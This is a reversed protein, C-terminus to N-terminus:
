PAIKWAFRFTEFGPGPTGLLVLQGPALPGAFRLIGRVKSVTVQRAFGYRQVTQTEHDYVESSVSLPTRAQGEPSPGSLEWRWRALEVCAPCQIFGWVEFSIEGSGWGLEELRQGTRRAVEEAPAPALAGWERGEAEVWAPDVLAVEVWRIDLDPPVVTRTFADRVEEAPLGALEPHVGPGLTAHVAPTCGALWCAALLLPAVPGAKKTVNM